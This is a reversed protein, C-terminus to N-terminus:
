SNKEELLIFIVMGIRKVLIELLYVGRWIDKKLDHFNSAICVYMLGKM